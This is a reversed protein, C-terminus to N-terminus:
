PTVLGNTPFPLYQEEDKGNIFDISYRDIEFNLLKFSFNLNWFSSSIDPIQNVGAKIATYYFGKYLVSDGTQYTVSSLWTGRSAYDTRLKIKSIIKDAEGPKTYCLVLCKVYGPEVFVTKDEDSQISRMWLPLFTSNTEGVNKIRSRMNRFSNPFVRRTDSDSVKYNWDVYNSQNGSDVTINNQSVQVPSNIYDPLEVVSSISIKDKELEDIVDIFVVEYEVEQTVPNKGVAKRLTGFRLKKRSHNRSIAQIFQEASVSEIGAYM